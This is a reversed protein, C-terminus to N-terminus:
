SPITLKSVYKLVIILKSVCFWTRLNIKNDVQFCRTIINGVQSAHKLTTMSTEMIIAM